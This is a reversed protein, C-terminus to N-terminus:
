IAAGCVRRGTATHISPHTSWQQLPSRARARALRTTDGLENARESTKTTCAIKVLTSTRFIILNKQLFNYDCNADEENKQHIRTLVQLCM